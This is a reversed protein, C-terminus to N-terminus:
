AIFVILILIYKVFLIKNRILVHLVCMKLMLHDGHLRGETQSLGVGDWWGSCLLKVQVAPNEESVNGSNSRTSLNWKGLELEYVCRDM